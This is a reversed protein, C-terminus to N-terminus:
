EAGYIEMVQKAKEKIEKVVMALWRYGPARENDNSHQTKKYGMKESIEWDSLNMIFKYQYIKYQAPTLAKKMRDHFKNIGAELDYSEEPIQEVQPLINEDSISVPLKVNCADSKGTDIWKKYLPCTICPQGFVSCSNTFDDFAVCRVCPKQYNWYKDRWLNQIQRRIITHIFPFLPRTQDWHHFKKNLHAFIISKVDDWVIYNIANLTWRSHYKEIESSIITSLIDFTYSEGKPLPPLELIKTSTHYKGM